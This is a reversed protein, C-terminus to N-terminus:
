IFIFDQERLYVWSHIGHVIGHFFMFHVQAYVRSLHGPAWVQAAVSQGALAVTTLCRGLMAPTLPLIEKSILTPGTWKLFLAM